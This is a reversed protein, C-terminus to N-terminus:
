LQPFAKLGVTKKKIDFAFQQNEVEVRMLRYFPKQSKYSINKGHM